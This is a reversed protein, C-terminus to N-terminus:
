ITGAVRRLHICNFAYINLFTLSLSFASTALRCDRSRCQRCAPPFLQLHKPVSTFDSKNNVETISFSVLKHLGNLNLKLISPTRQKISQNRSNWCCLLKKRLCRLVTVGWDIRTVYGRLQSSHAEFSWSAVGDRMKMKIFRDTM